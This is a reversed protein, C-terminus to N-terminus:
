LALASPVDSWVLYCKSAEKGGWKGRERMHWGTLVGTVETEYIYVSPCSCLLTERFSLSATSRYNHFLILWQCCCLMRTEVRSWM